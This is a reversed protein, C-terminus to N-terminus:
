GIRGRKYKRKKIGYVKLATDWEDGGFDVPYERIDGRMFQVALMQEVFVGHDRLIESYGTLQARVKPKCVSSVFKYDVLTLVDDMMCLLDPTGAVGLRESFIPQEIAIPEVTHKSLFLEIAGVYPAYMAPFEGTYDEGRLALELVKHMTVGRDAAAEVVDDMSEDLEDGYIGAIDTVSPVV